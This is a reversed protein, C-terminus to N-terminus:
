RQQVGAARRLRTNMDDAQSASAGRSGGGFDTATLLYPEQRALAELAAKVTAPKVEGDEGFEITRQDLLRYALDPSRFGQRQAEAITVLRLSQEQARADSRQLRSELEQVRANLREAETQESQQKQGAAEERAREKRRAAAAERELQAIHARLSEVTDQGGTAAGGQPQQPEAGQAPTTAGQAPAAPAGQAGGDGTAEPM